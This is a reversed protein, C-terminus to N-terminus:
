ISRELIIVDIVKCRITNFKVLAPITIYRDYGYFGIQRRISQYIPATFNTACYSGSRPDITCGYSLAKEQNSVQVLIVDVNTVLQHTYVYAVVYTAVWMHVYTCVYSYVHIYVLRMIKCVPIYTYADQLQCSYYLLM